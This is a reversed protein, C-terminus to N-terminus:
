ASTTPGARPLTFSFTSGRGPSSECWIRGGHAEVVGKAIALGLGVGRHDNRQAQWFNDFLHEIDGASIGPGTDSIHIAVNNGDASASMTVKGREPTFKIANGLINGIIQSVRLPDARVAIGPEPPISELVIHRKEALPRYIEAAQDFIMAVAVDELDLVLKGAHLRVTDLLDGILRNMQRGARLTVELLDTRRAQDLSEHLLLDTSSIIVNLPNRLDHAVVGLVEERAQAVLEAVHRREREADYSRGVEENLRKLEAARSEALARARHLAEMTTTITVSVILFAIIELAEVRDIRLSGGPVLFNLDILLLSAFTALTSPGTGGYWASIAVAPVFFLFSPTPGARRLLLTAVLAMSTTAAALAYRALTGRLNGSWQQPALLQRM